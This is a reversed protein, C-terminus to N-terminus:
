VLIATDRKSSGAALLCTLLTLDQRKGWFWLDAKGPTPLHGSWSVDPQCAQADLLLLRVKGRLFNVHVQLLDTASSVTWTGELGAASTPATYEQFLLCFFIARTKIHHKRWKWSVDWFGPSYYAVFGCFDVNLYSNWPVEKYLITLCESILHWM